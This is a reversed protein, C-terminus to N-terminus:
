PGNVLFFEPNNKLNNRPFAGPRQCLEVDSVKSINMIRM